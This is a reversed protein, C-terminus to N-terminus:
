CGGEEGGGRDYTADFLKGTGTGQYKPSVIVSQAHWRNYRKRHSTGYTEEDKKHWKVFELMPM